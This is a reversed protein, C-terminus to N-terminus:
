DWRKGVGERGMNEEKRKRQAQRRRGRRQVEKPLLPLPSPFVVRM